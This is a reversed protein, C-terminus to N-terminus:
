AELSAPDVVIHVELGDPHWLRKISAGLQSGAVSESLMTGFGNRNPEGKVAPGGTERWVMAYGEAGSTCDVTVQGGGASLAGYKSANTLLEHVILALAIASRRGVPVDAGQILFRPHAGTEYPEALMRLLGQVTRPVDVAAPEAQHSQVYIHATALSQIRAGVDRAYAELEPHGRAPLAVLSAMVAFINKIRHALEAAIRQRAAEAEKLDHIDTCTGYWRVIRGEADRECRARGIMWRYEGSHHRLRYEVEYPEGTALSHRWVKWAHERDDAHFMENWGEGDTTGEPVGTFEYWRKNYYDHYGDPLTSWVIQDISNTIAECRAESAHLAAEARRETTVDLAIGLLRPADDECVEMRRGRIQVWRQQGDASLARYACHLPEGAAAADRFAAAIRERDEAMVSQCLDAVSQGRVATEGSAHLQWFMQDAELRDAVPDWEWIGVGGGAELAMGSRSLPEAPRDPKRQEAVTM